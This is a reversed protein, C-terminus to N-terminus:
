KQWFSDYRQPSAHLLVACCATAFQCPLHMPSYAADTYMVEGLGAM